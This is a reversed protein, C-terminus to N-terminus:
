KVSIQLLTYGKTLGLKLIEKPILYDISYCYLYNDTALIDDFDCKDSLKEIEGTELDAKYLGNDTSNITREFIENTKRHRLTYYMYKGRYEIFDFCSFIDNYIKNYNENTFKEGSFNYFWANDDVFPGQRVIIQEGNPIIYSDKYYYYDSIGDNIKFDAKQEGTIINYVLVGYRYNEECFVYLYDDQVFLQSINGNINEAVTKDDENAIDYCIINNNKTYFVADKGVIWLDCYDAIVTNIDSVTNYINLKSNYYVVKTDSVETGRNAADPLEGYEISTKSNNDLKYIDTSIDNPTKVTLKGDIYKLYEGKYFGTDTDPLYNNNRSFFVILLVSIILLLFLVISALIVLKRKTKIM